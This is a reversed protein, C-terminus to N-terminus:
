CKLCHVCKHGKGIPRPKPSETETKTEDSEKLRKAAPEGIEGTQNEKKDPEGAKEPEDISTGGRRRTKM